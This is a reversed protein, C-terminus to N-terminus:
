RSSRHPDRALPSPLNTIAGTIPTIVMVRQTIMIPQTIMTQSIIM